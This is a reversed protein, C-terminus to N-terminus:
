MNRSSPRLTSFATTLDINALYVLISYSNQYHKYVLTPILYITQLSNPITYIFLSWFWFKIFTQLCLDSDRLSELILFPTRYINRYWLRLKFVIQFWLRFHKIPEMMATPTCFNTVSTSTQCINWCWLWFKIVIKLNINSNSLYKSFFDSSHSHISVLFLIQYINSSM